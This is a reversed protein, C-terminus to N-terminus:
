KECRACSPRSQTSLCEQFTPAPSLWFLFVIGQLFFFFSFLFLSWIVPGAHIIAETLYRSASTAKQLFAPNGLCKGILYFFGCRKIQIVGHHTAVYNANLGPTRIYEATVSQPSLHSSITTNKKNNRWGRLAPLLSCASCFRRQRAIAQLQSGDEHMSTHPTQTHTWTTLAQPMSLCLQGNSLLMEEWDYGTPRAVNSACMVTRSVSLTALNPQKGGLQAPLIQKPRSTIIQAVKQAM